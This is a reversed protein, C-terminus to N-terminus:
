GPSTMTRHTNGPAPPAGAPFSVPGQPRRAPAAPAAEASSSAAPQTRKVEPAPPAGAPFSITTM